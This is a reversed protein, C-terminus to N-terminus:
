APVKSLAIAPMPNEKIRGPRFAIHRGEIGGSIAHLFSQVITASNCDACNPRVVLIAQTFMRVAQASFGHVMSEHCVFTDQVIVIQTPERFKIELLM